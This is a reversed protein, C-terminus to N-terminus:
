REEIIVQCFEPFEGSISLLGEKLFAGVGDLFVRNEQNEECSIDMCFEGREPAAAKLEFGKRASLVKFAAQSLVSAAACVIDGGKPGAGAHGKLRCSKLLGKEFVLRANIM